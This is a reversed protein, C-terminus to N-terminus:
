PTASSKPEGGGAALRLYRELAVGAGPLEEYETAIRRAGGPIILDPRQREIAERWAAEAEAEAGALQAAIGLLMWGDDELPERAQASRLAEAAAAPERRRLLIRARALDVEISPGLRAAALLAADADVGAGASEFAAAVRLWAERNWEGRRRSEDFAREAEEIQGKALRVLGLVYHTRQEGPAALLAVVAWRSAQAVEGSELLLTALGLAAPPFDGDLSLSELYSARAGDRDGAGLQAEALAAFNAATAGALRSSREFHDVLDAVRARERHRALLENGLEPDGARVMLQGLNLLSPVHGPDRALARRFAEAAAEMRGSRRHLLGLEAWADADGRREAAVTLRPEAEAFRGLASLNRGLQFSVDVDDPRMAACIELHTVALELEGVLTAALGIGRHSEFQGPDAALEIEFERIAARHNELSGLLVGIAYHLRPTGPREALQRRALELAELERHEQRLQELRALLAAEDPALRPPPSERVAAPNRRAGSDPADCSSSAAAVLGLAVAGLLGIPRHRSL